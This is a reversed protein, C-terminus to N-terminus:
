YNYLTINFLSVEFLGAKNPNFNKGSAQTCKKHFWTNCIQCLVKKLKKRFMQGECFGCKQMADTNSM